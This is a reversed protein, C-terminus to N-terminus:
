GYGPWGAGRLRTGSLDRAGPALRRRGLRAIGNVHGGDWAYAVYVSCRVTFSHASRRAAGHLLFAQVAPLARQATRSRRTPQEVHVCARRYAVDVIRTLTAASGSLQDALVVLGFEALQELVYALAEASQFRVLDVRDVEVVEDVAVLARCLLQPARRIWRIRSPARQM